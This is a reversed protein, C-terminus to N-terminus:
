GSTAGGGDPGVGVGSARVSGGGSDEADHIRLGGVNSAAPAPAPMTRISGNMMALLVPVGEVDVDSCGTESEVYVVVILPVTVSTVVLVTGVVMLSVTVSVLVEVAVAVDVVTLVDVSVFVDVVTLVEISVLVVTTVLTVTLVLTTISVHAPLPTGGCQTLQGYRM